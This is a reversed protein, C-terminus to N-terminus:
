AQEIAGLDKLAEKQAQTLGRVGTINIGEYPRNPRLIRLCQGSKVDWLRITEDGSGSALVEGSPSLQIEMIWRDHGQLTKYCEGDDLDWFQIGTELQGSGSVLSLGTQSSANPLLVLSMPASARIVQLCQGTAVEWLRIEQDYCSCSALFRGDPSFVVCMVSGSHGELTKLCEGTQVDWLKVTQDYSSSALIQGNPSFALFWIWDHHGYLTKLCKGTKVDWLKITQDESSSALIPAVPNFVVCWVQNSHGRLKRLLQGTGANWLCVMQDEGGSAITCGDSSFAVSSVRHTHGTLINYCRGTDVQWLRIVQEDGSGAITRGDPSFAISWIQHTHGQLVKTCHGSLALLEAGSERPSGFNQLMGIEWLRVTQDDSGSALMPKVPSFAVSWIRHTHGELIKLCRGTKINWLRVTQDEGASALLTGEPSFAVSWVWNQHGYLTTLCDGTVADWLKVTTDHSGSAVYRGEPSFAVATIWGTHGHLTNICQQTTLDWLKVTQDQSGSVLHTGDPHFAVSWIRQSHGALTQLCKGSTVQWVKLTGDDSSSVLTQGDPSFDLACVHGSHETLVQLCDGTQVDWIRISSEDSGSALYRGTPAFDLARVWDGHGQLQHLLQMDSLRWLRVETNTDSTALLTGDPSFAVALVSSFTQTFAPQDFEAEAFNVRHLSTNQLYAHRITLESFDYDTIDLNLYICLNLLNGGSYNSAIDSNARLQQLLVQIHQQLAEPSAFAFRLRDGIKQLILRFQAARVYASVTTKILAYRDFLALKQAVLEIVVQHVLQETVYEMVAPQQTYQGSQKEILSRWTLSELAELLSSRSVAPTIDQYLEAFSVWERNIALWYMISKELHSLREFQQELLRRIGNFILTEEQLFESISGDFLSHISSAVVKLALPSCGYFECLQRKEQDSGVLQKVNLIALAAELSGSLTESRVWGDTEEMFAVEAPKERSTLLVCSQHASEGLVRLLEGYNEYDPQYYGARDGAQMITELNDLIVLCRHTRLWHLLRDPKTQTDQQRSVFPVLDSLLTELPPANRLSRWIIFEFQDQLMTAIKAALSSKGIGGMGLLAVMRCRDDIMWQKLTNLETERGYFISADIAEGWDLTSPNPCPPPPPPALLPSHATLIAAASQQPPATASAALPLPELSKPQSQSPQSQLQFQVLQTLIARANTKNIKRKLSSSLLKWFKPGMDRQLYNLSYGSRAAIEDYTLNEWAGRLLEVELDSLPRDCETQLINNVIPIVQDFEIEIASAPHM